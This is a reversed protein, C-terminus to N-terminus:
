KGITLLIDGAGTTIECKGGTTTKPVDVHGTDTKTVFVKHSSLSGQVDGTETKVFIEQADSSDFIVDGTDTQISFGGLAVVNELNVDGTDSKARLSSCLIVALQIKGTDTEVELKNKVAAANLTINGTETSLGVREATLGNMKINGTDTEIKVTESVLALCDIDATNAEIELTGFSCDQPIVVDGTDTEIFVGAYKEKPLYVTMKPSYLYIGIHDYWKRTDVTHIALRGNQVTASHQVKEPAYCELFCNEEDTPVFTINTTDTNISISDFADGIEYTNIEYTVTSLKTFDWEYAFMVGAVVILGLGVLMSAIVLWAKVTRSM